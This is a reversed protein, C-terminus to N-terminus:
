GKIGTTAIGEVFYKQAFFFLVILPVMSVMAMALINNWNIATTTDITLRLGLALPYLRVSSIYIFPLLFENWSWMFQFLGVSFLAPKSLPLIIELLLRISNCGDITASEDLERPIGRFFQILLFIFFPTGFATPVILPLYTDLWGLDRFMIYRPILMVSGPLMMTALMLGFLFRKGIFKFRAFGYAVITSSVMSLIVMPIVMRFTNIFYTTFTFSGTSQWGAIYGELTFREPLLRATAFIEDNTKFTSFFLWILPYTMLFGGIIVLIHRVFSNHKKQTM